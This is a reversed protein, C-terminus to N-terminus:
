HLLFALTLGFERSKSFPIYRQICILPLPNILNQNRFIYHSSSTQKLYSSISGYATPVPVAQKETPDIGNTMIPKHEVKGWLGISIPIKGVKYGGKVIVHM